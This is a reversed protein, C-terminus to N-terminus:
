IKYFIYCFGLFILWFFSRYVRRGMWVFGERWFCKGLFGFSLKAMLIFIDSFFLVLKLFLYIFKFGVDVWWFFFRLIVEERFGIFFVVVIFFVGLGIGFGEFSWLCSVRRAREEKFVSSFIDWLSGRFECYM